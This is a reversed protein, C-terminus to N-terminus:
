CGTKQLIDSCIFPTGNPAIGFNEFLKMTGFFIWTSFVLMALLLIRLINEPNQFDTKNKQKPRAESTRTNQVETSSNFLQTTTEKLLTLVSM